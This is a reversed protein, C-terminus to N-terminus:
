KQLCGAGLKDPCLFCQDPITVMDSNYKTFRQGALVEGTQGRHKVHKHADKHM